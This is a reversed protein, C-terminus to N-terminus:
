LNITKNVISIHMYFIYIKLLQFMSAIQESM